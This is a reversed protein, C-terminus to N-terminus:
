GIYWLSILIQSGTRAVQPCHGVPYRANKIKEAAQRYVPHCNKSVGDLLNTLNTNAFHTM